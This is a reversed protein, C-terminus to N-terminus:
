PPQARQLLCWYARLAKFVSECCARHVACSGGMHPVLARKGCAFTKSICCCCIHMCVLCLCRVHTLLSHSRICVQGYAPAAAPPGQQMGDGGEGEEEAQVDTVCTCPLGLAGAVYEDSWHVSLMAVRSGLALAHMLAPRAHPRLPVASGAARLEAPVHGAYMCEHMCTYVCTSVLMYSLSWFTAQM